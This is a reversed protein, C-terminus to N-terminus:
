IVRMDNWSTTWFRVAWHVKQQSLSELFARLVHWWSQRFVAKGQNWIRTIPEYRNKLSEHMLADTNEETSLHYTSISGPSRDAFPSLHLCLHAWSLWFSSVMCVHVGKALFDQVRLPKCSNNGIGILKRHSKWINIRTKSPSSAKVSTSWFRMQKGGVELHSRSIPSSWSSPISSSQNGDRACKPPSSELEVRITGLNTFIGGSIVNHKGLHTWGKM